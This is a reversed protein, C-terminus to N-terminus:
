GPVDEYDPMPTVLLEPLFVHSEEPDYLPLDVKWEGGEDVMPLVAILLAPTAKSVARPVPPADAFVRAAVAPLPALSYITTGVGSNDPYGGGNIEMWRALLTNPDRGQRSAKSSLDYLDDADGADLASHFNLAVQAAPHVSEGEPPEIIRGTGESDGRLFEAWSRRILPVDLYGRRILEGRDLSPLTESNVLSVVIDLGTGWMRAVQSVSLLPDDDSM